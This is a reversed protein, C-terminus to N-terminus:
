PAIRRRRNRLSGISRIVMPIIFYDALSCFLSFLLVFALGYFYTRAPNAATLGTPGVAFCIGFLLLSSTVLLWAGFHAAFDSQM